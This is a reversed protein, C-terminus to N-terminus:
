LSTDLEKAQQLKQATLSTRMPSQQAAASTLINSSRLPSQGIAKFKRHATNPSPHQMASMPPMQALPQNIQTAPMFGGQGQSPVVSPQFQHSPPAPPPM